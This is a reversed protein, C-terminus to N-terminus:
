LARDGESDRIFFLVPSYGKAQRTESIVAISRHLDRKIWETWEMRSVDLVLEVLNPLIDFDDLQWLGFLRLVCREIGPIAWLDRLQAPMDAGNNYIELHRVREFFGEGKEGLPTFVILYPPENDDCTNHLTVRDLRPSILRKMFSELQDGSFNRFELLELNPLVLQSVPDNDYSENQGDLNAVTLIRLAQHDINSLGQLTDAYRNASIFIHKPSQINPPQTWSDEPRFDDPWEDEHMLNLRQLKPAAMNGFVLTDERSSNRRIIHSLLPLHLQTPTASRENFELDDAKSVQISLVRLRPLTTQDFLNLVSRIRGSVHLQDLRSLEVRSRHVSETEESFFPLTIFLLKLNSCSLLLPFFTAEQITARTIELCLIELRTGALMQLYTVLPRDEAFGAAVITPIHHPKNHPRNQNIDMSYLNSIDDILRGHSRPASHDIIRINRCGTWELRPFYERNYVFQEPYGYLRCQLPGLDLAVVQQRHQHLLAIARVLLRIAIHDDGAPIADMDNFSVWLDAGNSGRLSAVYRTLTRARDPADNDDNLMNFDIRSMYLHRNSQLNVLGAWRRCISQALKAFPKITPVGALPLFSDAPYPPLQEPIEAKAIWDSEHIHLEVESGVTFIRSLMEDPLDNIHRM